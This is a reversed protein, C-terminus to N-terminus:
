LSPFCCTARLPACLKSVLIEQIQLPICFLHKKHNQGVETGGSFPPTPLHDPLQYQQLETASPLLSSLRRAM